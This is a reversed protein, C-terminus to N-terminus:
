AHLGEVKRHEWRLEIPMLASNIQLFNRLCVPMIGAFYIWILISLSTHLSISKTRLIISSTLRGWFFQVHISWRLSFPQRRLIYLKVWSHLDMGIVWFFYTGAWKGSEKINQSCASGFILVDEIWLRGNAFLHVPKNHSVDNTAKSAKPLVMQQRLLCCIINGAKSNGTVNSSYAM